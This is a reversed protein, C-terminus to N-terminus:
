FSGLYLDLRPHTAFPHPMGRVISLEIPEGWTVDELLYRIAQERSTIKTGNIAQIVDGSELGAKVATAPFENRQASEADWVVSITVETPSLLGAEALDMGFIARLEVSEKSLTLDGGALSEYDPVPRTKPTPLAITIPAARAELLPEVASGPMTVDIGQHCTICRDFRAVWALNYNVKLDPCWLQQIRVPSNFADLIPYELLSNPEQKERAEQLAEIQDVLLAVKKEEDVVNGDLKRLAAQLAERHVKVEQLRLDMMAIRAKIENLKGELEDIEHQPAGATIALQFASNAADREAREFKLNRSSLNFEDNVPRFIDELVAKFEARRDRVADVDDQSISEGYRKLDSALASYAAAVSQASGGLGARLKDAFEQEPASKGKSWLRFTNRTKGPWGRSCHM